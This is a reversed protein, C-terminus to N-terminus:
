NTKYSSSSKDKNSPVKLGPNCELKIKLIMFIYQVLTGEQASFDFDLGLGLTLYFLSLHCPGCM